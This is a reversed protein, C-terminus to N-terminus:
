VGKNKLMKLAKAIEKGFSDILSILEEPTRTDEVIKKNPNVAKMDYNKAQIEEIPVSWSRESKTLKLKSPNFLKFFEDSHQLTLPQKKTM